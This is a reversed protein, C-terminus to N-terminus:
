LVGVPCYYFQFGLSVPLQKGKALEGGTKPPDTGKLIKHQTNQKAQRRETDQAGLTALTDPKDM